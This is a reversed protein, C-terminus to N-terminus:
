SQIKFRELTESISKRSSDLRSILERGSEFNMTGAEVQKQIESINFSLTDYNGKLASIFEQLESSLLNVCDALDQLDDGKRLTVKSRLDWETMQLLKTRLRYVPGAIKHTIFISFFGFLPIVIFVAPWVNKHYLLLIEAAKVQENIPSNFIFPLMQPIFLLGIFLITYLLLMFIVLLIYKAQFQRDIFFKRRKYAKMVITRSNYGTWTDPCTNYPKHRHSQRDTSTAVYSELSFLNTKFEALLTENLVTRGFGDKGTVMDLSAPYGANEMHYDEITKRVTELTSIGVTLKAKAIYSNYMPYAIASLAAIIALAVLVEILTFGSSKISLTKLPNIASASVTMVLLDGSGATLIGYFL